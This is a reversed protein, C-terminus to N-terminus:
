GGPRQGKLEVEAWGPAKAPLLWYGKRHENSSVVGDTLAAGPYTADWQGSVVVPAHLAINIPGRYVQIETLGGCPGHWKTIEVRVRDFKMRPLAVSLEPDMGAHWPVELTASKWVVEGRFQLLINVEATGADNSPGNHTNVLVLRDATQYPVGVGATAFMKNVTELDEVAKLRDADRKKHGELYEAYYSQARGLAVGKGYADAAEALKRYWGGLKLCDSESLDKPERAALVIMNLFEGEDPVMRAPGAASRPDDLRLLFSLAVHKALTADGTSKLKKLQKDLTEEVQQRSSAARIKENIEDSRVSRLSAAITAADRYRMAADAYKHADFLADGEEITSTLLARGAEQREATRGNKFQLKLLEAERARLDAEREPAAAREEKLAQAATGYGEPDRVALLYARQYIVLRLAPEDALAKAYDLLKAALGVDDRTGLTAVARREDAGFIAEYRAVAAPDDAPATAPSRDPPPAAASARRANAGCLVFGWAALGVAVPWNWQQTSM